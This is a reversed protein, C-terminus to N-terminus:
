QSEIKFVMPSVCNKIIELVREFRFLERNIKLAVAFFDDLM